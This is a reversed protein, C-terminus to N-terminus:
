IFEADAFPSPSFPDTFGLLEDAPMADGEYAENELVHRHNNNRPNKPGITIPDQIIFSEILKQLESPTQVVLIDEEQTIISHIMQDDADKFTVCMKQSTKFWGNKNLKELADVYNDSSAGELIFLISPSHMRCGLKCFLVKRSLSSNLEELAQGVNPEGDAFLPSWSLDDVPVLGDTKWIAQNSFILIGLHIETGDPLDNEIKKMKEILVPMGNNIAEIPEGRLAGSTDLVFLVPVIKKKVEFDSKVRFDEIECSTKDM